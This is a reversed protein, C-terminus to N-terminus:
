EVLRYEVFKVPEGFRNKGKVPYSVIYHGANRLNFIIASLRTVGFKEFADKSTIGRRKKLYDLIRACNGKTGIM